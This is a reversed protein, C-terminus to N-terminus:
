LGCQPLRDRTAAVNLTAISGALDNAAGGTSRGDRTRRAVATVDRARDALETLVARRDAEQAALRDLDGALASTARVVARVYARGEAATARPGPVPPVAKTAASCVATILATGRDAAVPATTGAPAPDDGGGGCGTLALLAAVSVTATRRAPRTRPM